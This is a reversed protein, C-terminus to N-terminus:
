GQSKLTPHRPLGALFQQAQRPLVDVLQQGRGFLAVEPGDGQSDPDASRQGGLHVREIRAVHRSHDGAAIGLQFLFHDDEAGM